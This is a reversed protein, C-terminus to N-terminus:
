RDWAAPTAPACGARVSAPLELGGRGNFVRFAGSLVAPALVRGVTSGDASTRVGVAGSMERLLGYEGTGNADLDCRAAAQFEAQATAIGRLTAIASTENAALRASLM